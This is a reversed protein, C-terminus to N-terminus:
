SGPHITLKCSLLSFLITPTFQPSPAIRSQSQSPSITPRLGNMPGITVHLRYQPIQSRYMPKLYTEPPSFRWMFGIDRDEPKLRHNERGSVRTDTSLGPLCCPGLYQHNTSANCVLNDPRRTRPFCTRLICQSALEM